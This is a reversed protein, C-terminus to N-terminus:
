KEKNTLQEIKEDVFKKLPSYHFEIDYTNGTIDKDLNMVRDPYVLTKSIYTWVKLEAERQANSIKTEMVAMDYDCACCWGDKTDHAHTKLYEKQAKSILSKIKIKLMDWESVMDSYGGICRKQFLVPEYGELYKTKRFVKQAIKDLQEDLQNPKTM